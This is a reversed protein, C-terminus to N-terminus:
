KDEAEEYRKIKAKGMLGDILLQYDFKGLREPLYKVIDIKETAEKTSQSEYVKTLQLVAYGGRLDVVTASVENSGPQTLDFAAEVLQANNHQGYSANIISNWAFGYKKALEESGTKGKRLEGLLEQSFDYAMKQMEKTKLKGVITARVQDLPLLAEPIHDKIRLVVLKGSGIEIPSSNYGQKLVAESFATKIIKNNALIGSSGGASTVLGTTQIKLGLEQAAPELSDSNTYTLDVLKDHAESFVQTLQQHKYAQKVKSVVASYPAAIESQIALVKVLSVGDKTRFPKSIQGVNLKDFQTAVEAGAENRTLWVKAIQAGAIKTLDDEAKIQSLKKQANVLAKTDAMQPLPLLVRTVQWKKPTSFSSIHSQYYQKLQEESAEVKSHLDGSSLEVYQISIKEPVTFESQHQEYYKRVDIDAVQVTNSFREPSVILYWFDRRQRLIKKVAEIENPLDFASGVVGGELQAQLISSKLGELFVPASYFLRETIQQFYDPSFRGSTQFIPLGSVIAWLQKQGVDLGMNAIAQSIVEKKILQQRITKKIQVQAKQDFSFTQELRITESRKLQEYAINEQLRTIKKGNVKAIVQAESDSHLYNQVGWLAFTLAIIGAIIGAVWGQMKDHMIQLM